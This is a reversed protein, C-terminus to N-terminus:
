GGWLALEAGLVTSIQALLQAFLWALRATIVIALLSGMM